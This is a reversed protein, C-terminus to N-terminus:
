PSPPTEEDPRSPLPVRKTRLPAPVIASTTPTQLWVGQPYPKPELKRVARAVAWAHADCRAFFIKIDDVLNDFDAGMYETLTCEFQYGNKPFSHLLRMEDKPEMRFISNPRKELTVWSAHVIDNRRGALRRADEYLSVGELVLESSLADKAVALFAQKRLNRDILSSYIELAAVQQSDLMFVFAMALRMEVRQWAAAILASKEAFGPKAFAIAPDLNIKYGKFKYPNPM